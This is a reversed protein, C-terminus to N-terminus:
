SIVEYTLHQRELAFKSYLDCPFVTIQQMVIRPDYLSIYWITELDFLMLLNPINYIKNTNVLNSCTYFRMKRKVHDMM